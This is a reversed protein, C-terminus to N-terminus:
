DKPLPAPEGPTKYVYPKIVMGESYGNIFFRAGETVYNKPLAADRDTIVFEYQSDDWRTKGDKPKPVAIMKGKIRKGYMHMSFSGDAEVKEFTASEVYDRGNEYTMGLVLIVINNGRTLGSLIPPTLVANSGRKLPDNKVLELLLPDKAVADKITLVRCAGIDELRRSFYKEVGEKTEEVTAARSGSKAIYRTLEEHLWEAKKDFDGTKPIPMVEFANWWLLSVWLADVMSEDDNGGFDHPDREPILNRDAFPLDKFKGPDFGPQKTQGGDAPKGEFLEIIKQDTESLNGFAVVLMKGDATLFRIKGGNDISEAYVGRFTAGNKGTWIREDGRDPAAGALTLLAAFAVTSSLLQMMKRFM